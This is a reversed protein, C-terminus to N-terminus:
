IILLKDAIAMWGAPEKILKEVHHQGWIFGTLGRREFLEFLIQRAPGTDEKKRQGLTEILITEQMARWHLDMATFRCVNSYKFSIGVKAAASVAGSIISVATSLAPIASIVATSVQGGRVALKLNKMTIIVDIWAQITASEKHASAINRLGTLHKLTSACAAGGQGVVGIDVCTVLSAGAGAVAVATSAASVYGRKKLYQITEPSLAEDHKNWVFWPNPIPVAPHNNIFSYIEHIIASSTNLVPLSTLTDILATGGDAIAWLLENKDFDEKSVEEIKRRIEKYDTIVDVM